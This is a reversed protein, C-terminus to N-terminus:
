FSSLWCLSIPELFLFLKKYLLYLWIRALTFYFLSLLFYLSPLNAENTSLYDRRNQNGELNYMASRVTMSVNVQDLCNSFALIYHDAFHVPFVTNFSSKGKLSSLDSIIHPSSLACFVKGDAFQQQLLFAWTYRTCVFFGVKDLYYYPIQNSITVQSVNLELRGNHTFQFEDLPIVFYRDNSRISTSRIEVFNFSVFFSIFLVLLMSSWMMAMPSIPFFLSFFNANIQNKLSLNGILGM